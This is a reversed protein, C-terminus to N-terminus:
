AYMAIHGVCQISRYFNCFLFIREKEGLVIESFVTVASFKSPMSKKRGNSIIYIKGTKGPFGGHLGWPPIIFRDAIVSIYTRSRVKFSGLHVPIHEAQAILLAIRYEM